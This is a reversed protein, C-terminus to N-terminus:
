SKLRVIYTEPPKLESNLILIRFRLLDGPKYIGRDTEVFVVDNNPYIVIPDQSHSSLIPGNM